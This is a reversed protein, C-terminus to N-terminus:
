ILLETCVVVIGTSFFTLFLLEFSFYLLDDCFSMGSKKHSPNLQKSFVCGSLVSRCRSMRVIGMWCTTKFLLNAIIFALFSMFTVLDDM